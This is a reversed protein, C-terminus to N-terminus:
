IAGSVCAGTDVLLQVLQRAIEGETTLDNCKLKFESKCSHFHNSPKSRHHNTTPLLVQKHSIQPEPWHRENARTPKVKKQLQTASAAKEQSNIKEENPLAALVHDASNEREFTPNRTRAPQHCTQEVIGSSKAKNVHRNLVRQAYQADAYLRASSNAALRQNEKKYYHVDQSEEQRFYNYCNYQVIIHGTRGCRYCVTSNRRALRNMRDVRQNLNELKETFGNEMLRIEELVEPTEKNKAESFTAISAANGDRSQSDDFHLTGQRLNIVAGNARLFDRGLVAEYTLNKVVRLECPYKGGAIGLLVEIKGLVPLEEGNVTKVNILASKQLKPLEREYVDRTFQEDIVSMGAGTDVLLKIDQDNPQATVTLDRSKAQNNAINCQKATIPTNEGTTQIPDPMCNPLSDKNVATSESGASLSPQPQSSRSGLDKRPKRGHM